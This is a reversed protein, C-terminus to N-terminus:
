RGRLKVLVCEIIDRVTTIGAFDSRNIAIDFEKEICFTVELAGISDLGLNDVLLSDRGVDKVDMDLKEALISIVRQGIGPVDKM